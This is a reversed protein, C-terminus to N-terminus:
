TEMFLASRTRDQDRDILGLCTERGLFIGDWWSMAPPRLLEREQAPPTIDAPAVGQTSDGVELTGGAQLYTGTIQLFGSVHNTGYYQEFEAAGTGRVNGVLENGAVTLLIAPPSPPVGGGGFQGMSYGGYGGYSQGGNAIVLNGGVTVSGAWHDFGGSGTDGIVLDGGVSLTPASGEQPVYMRVGGTSLISQGLTLNARITVNANGNLWMSGRSRGIVNSAGVTGTDASFTSRIHLVGVPIGGQVDLGNLTFSGVDVPSLVDVEGYPILANDGSGPVSALSPGPGDWPQDYWAGTNDWTGPPYAYFPYIWYRDVGRAAMPMAALTAAVAWKLRHKLIRHQGILKIRSGHEMGM